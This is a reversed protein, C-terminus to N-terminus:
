FWFTYVRLLPMRLELASSVTETCVLCAFCKLFKSLPFESTSTTIGKKHTKKKSRPPPNSALKKKLSPFRAFHVCALGMDGPCHVTKDGAGYPSCM